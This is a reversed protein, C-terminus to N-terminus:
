YESALMITMVRCTKDPDSPDASGHELDPAFYDIKFMIDHGGIEVMGFDHEGYPDDDADFDDYTRIRELITRQMTEGMAVIGATFMIRGGTLNNRFADNLIQIRDTKTRIFREQLNSM